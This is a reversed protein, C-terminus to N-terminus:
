TGRAGWRQLALRSEEDTSGMQAKTERRKQRGGTEGKREEVIEHEGKVDGAWRRKRNGSEEGRERDEKGDAAMRTAPRRRRRSEVRRESSKPGEFKFNVTGKIQFPAM